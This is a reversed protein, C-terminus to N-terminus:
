CIYGVTLPLCREKSIPHNAHGLLNCSTRATPPMGPKTSSEVVVLQAHAAEGRPLAAGPPATKVVKWRTCGFERHGTASNCM